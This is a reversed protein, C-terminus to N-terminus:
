ASRELDRLLPQMGLYRDGPYAELGRRLVAAAGGVAASVRPELEGRRRASDDAFPERGSLHAALAACFAFQDSRADAPAGLELEPASRGHTGAAPLPRGSRAACGFDILRVVGGRTLIAHEAKFDGHVIGRAHVAALARGAEIYAALVTARPVAPTLWDALSDGELLEMAVYSRDAGRGVGRLGVVRPHCAAQLAAAEHNAEGLPLMKLAVPQGDDAEARWVSSMSGTALREAFRYPGLRTGEAWRRGM